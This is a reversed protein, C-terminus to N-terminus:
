ETMEEWESLTIWNSSDFINDKVHYAKNKDLTFRELDKISPANWEKQVVVEYIDVGCEKDETLTNGTVPNVDSVGELGEKSLFLTDANTMFTYDTSLEGKSNFDKYLLIPNFQTKTSSLTDNDLAYGHDSVIIIRTNDYCGNERLWDLWSGIARIVATFPLYHKKTTEDNTPYGM